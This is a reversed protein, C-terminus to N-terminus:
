QQQVTHALTQAAVGFDLDIVSIKVEMTGVSVGGLKRIPYKDHISAGKLLDALPILATGIMDDAQEGPAQAGRSVGTIPANDDFLIVELNEKQLYHVMKADFVVEYAM